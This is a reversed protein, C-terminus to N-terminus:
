GVNYKRALEEYFVTDNNIREEARKNDKYYALMLTCGKVTCYRFTQNSRVAGATFIHQHM